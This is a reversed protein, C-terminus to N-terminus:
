SLLQTTYREIQINESWYDPPLGAKQKLHKLFSNPDPIQEWVSPLFTGSSNQDRLILGDIGPRIQQILDAESTFNIPEPISLVSIDLEIEPIEITTVPVFRPDRFAAMFANKVVDAILPMSAQLSGICGRLQKHKHLTVFSAQKKQLTEPYDTLKIESPLGYTIGHEICNKAAHLLIKSDQQNILVIHEM